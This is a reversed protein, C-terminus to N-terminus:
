LAAGSEPDAALLVVQQRRTDLTLAANGSPDFTVYGGREQGTADYILVGSAKEGRPVRRGNIVADPLDGGIRVREVGKPDVVVLESVKLSQPTAPQQPSSRMTFACVALTALGVWAGISIRLTRELRRTRRELVEFCSNDNM